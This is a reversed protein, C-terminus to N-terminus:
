GDTVNLVEISQELEGQYDFHLVLEFPLLSGLIRGPTSLEDSAQADARVREPPM